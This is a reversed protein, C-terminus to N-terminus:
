WLSYLQGTTVMTVSPAIKSNDAVFSHLIQGLGAHHSLDNVAGPSHPIVLVQYASAPPNYLFIVFVSLFLKM